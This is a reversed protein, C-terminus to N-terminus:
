RRSAVPPEPQAGVSQTLRAVLLEVVAQPDPPSSKLADDAERLAAFAEQLQRKRFKGSVRMIKEANEHKAQIRSRVREMPMGPPRAVVIFLQRYLWALLGVIAIPNEGQLLLRRLRELVHARSRDALHDLLTFVIFRRAPVVVAQLDNATVEKGEGVFSRLKEVERKLLGLNPGVADVLDAARERSLRLGLERAMQVVKQEAIADPPSDAKHEECKRSLLQYVRTRRDLKAEDFLLLTFEPLSDLLEELQEIEEEGLSEADRLILVQRPSLLTPTSAARRVEDLGTRALSYERVAFARAEEPVM